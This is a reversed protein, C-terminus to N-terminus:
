QGGRLSMSYLQVDEDDGPMRILGDLQLGLKEILRISPANRPSVIATLAPLELVDRAYQVVAQAAEGAFGKGVWDPLLAFGIDPYEINERKFLGCIGIRTGDERLEMWFPGVGHEAFMKQPGTAIADRAEELTRVGKDNVNHIFAPDNWIALMIDADDTTVPGIRLRETDILHATM